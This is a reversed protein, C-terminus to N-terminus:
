YYLTDCMRGHTQLSRSSHSAPPMGCRAEAERRLGRETAAPLRGGVPGGARCGWGPPARGSAPASRGRWESGWAGPPRAGLLCPPPRSLLDSRCGTGASSWSALTSSLRRSSICITMTMHYDSSRYHFKNAKHLYFNQHRLQNVTDTNQNRTIM